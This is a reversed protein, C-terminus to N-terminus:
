TYALVALAKLRGAYGQTDDRRYSIFIRENGAM